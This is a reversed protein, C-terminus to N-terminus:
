GFKIRNAIKNKNVLTLGVKGQKRVTNQHSGFLKDNLAKKFGLYDHIYKSHLEIETNSNKSYITLIHYKKLKNNGDLDVEEKYNTHLDIALRKTKLWKRYVVEDDYLKISLSGEHVAWIGLVLFLIGGILASHGATGHM